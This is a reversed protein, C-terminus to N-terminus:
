PRRSVRNFNAPSPPSCLTLVSVASHTSVALTAPTIQSADTIVKLLITRHSAVMHIIERDSFQLMNSQQDYLQPCSSKPHLKGCESNIGDVSNRHWTLLRQGWAALLFYATNINRITSFVVQLRPPSPPPRTVEAGWSSGVPAPHEQENAWAGRGSRTLQVATLIAASTTM